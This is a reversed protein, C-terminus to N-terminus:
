IDITYLNHKRQIPGISKVYLLLSNNNTNKSEMTETCKALPVGM